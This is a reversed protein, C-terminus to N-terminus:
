KESKPATGDHDITITRAVFLSRASGGGHKGMAHDYGNERWGKRQNEDLADDVKRRYDAQAASAKEPDIRRIRISSDDAGASEEEVQFADKMAADREEVARKLTDVQTDSLGLDTKAQEWRKDEPLMRLRMGNSLGKLEGGIGELEKELHPIAIKLGEKDLPFEEAEGGFAIQVDGHDIAARPGLARRIRRVPEASAADDGGPGGPQAAKRQEIEVAAVRESLDAAAERARKADERSGALANEIRDLRELIKASADDAPPPPPEHTLGAAFAAAGGAGAAVAVVLLLDKATM